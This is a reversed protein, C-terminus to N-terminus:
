GIKRLDKKSYVSIHSIGGQNMKLTVSLEGTFKNESHERIERFILELDRQLNPNM